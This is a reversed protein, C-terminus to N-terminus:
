RKGLSPLPAIFNLADDWWRLEPACPWDGHGYGDQMILKKPGSLWRDSAGGNGDEALFADHLTKLDELFQPRRSPPLAGFIREV